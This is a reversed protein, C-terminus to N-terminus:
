TAAPRDPIPMSLVVSSLAKGHPDLHLSRTVSDGPLRSFVFNFAGLQPLDYRTGAGDVLDGLQLSVREATLFARLWGYDQRNFVIVSVNVVTGKDGARGHAVDALIV